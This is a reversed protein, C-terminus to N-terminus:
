PEPWSKPKYGGQADSIRWGAHGRKPELGRVSQVYVFFSKRRGDQEYTVAYVDDVLDIRGDTKANENDWLRVTAKDGLALLTRVLPTKVYGKLGASQSPTSRYADWLEGDLPKRDSSSLTLQYAKQPEGRRLYEFWQSVFARSDERMLHAYYFTRAPALTGFVASLALGLLAAKRGTAQVEHDLAWLAYGNVLLGLGPLVWLVPHFVALASALGFVVGALASISLPQYEVLEASETEHIAALEESESMM